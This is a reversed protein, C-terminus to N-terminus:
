ALAPGIHHVGVFADAAAATDLGALLLILHGLVLMDVPCPYFAVPDFRIACDYYLRRVPAVITEVIDLIPLVLLGEKHGLEAVLALSGGTHLYARYSGGVLGLISDDKYVVVPTYAATVADLGTRVLDPEDM